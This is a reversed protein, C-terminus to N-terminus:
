KPSKWSIGVRFKRPLVDFFEIRYGLLGLCESVRETSDLVYTNHCPISVITEFAGKSVAREVEKSIKKEVYKLTIGRGSAKLYAEIAKM